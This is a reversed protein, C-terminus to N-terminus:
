CGLKAYRHRHAREISAPVEFFLQLTNRSLSPPGAFQHYAIVTRRIIRDCDQLTKLPLRRKWDRDNLVSHAHPRRAIKILRDPHSLSLVDSKAILVIPPQRM